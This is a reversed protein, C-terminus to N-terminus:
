TRNCCDQKQCAREPPAEHCPNGPLNFKVSEFDVSWGTYSEYTLAVRVTVEYENEDDAESINGGFEVGFGRYGYGSITWCRANDDHEIM